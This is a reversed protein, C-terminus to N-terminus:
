RRPIRLLTSGHLTRTVNMFVGSDEPDMNSVTIDMTYMRTTASDGSMDRFFLSHVQLNPNTLLSPEGAGEKKWVKNDQLYFITPNKEPDRTAISIMSEIYDSSNVDANTDVVVTARPINVPDTETVLGGTLLIDTAPNTIEFEISHGLTSLGTEGNLDYVVYLCTTTASLPLSSSATITDDDSISAVADYLTTGSSPKRSECLGESDADASYIRINEISSTAFSGLKKLKISNLVVTTDPTTLTFAGGLDQNETVATTTAVQRGQRGVTIVPISDSIESYNFGVSNLVPTSSGNGYLEAKYYFKYGSWGLSTLDITSTGVPLTNSANLTGNSDYWDSGSRSFQVNIGSGAPLSAVDFNLSNMTSPNESSLLNNSVITGSTVYSGAISNEASVAANVSVSNLVPTFAGDSFFWIQYYFFPYMWNLGSLDIRNEGVSLTTSSTEVGLADFWRVNDYSFQIKMSTGEPIQLANYDLSQAYLSDTGALVNTSTIIGMNQYPGDNIGGILSVAVSSSDFIPTATGDSTFWIRYYFATKTWELDSLDISNVGATLDTRGGLVGASDYWNINDFSFQAQLATGAPIASANYSFTNITSPSNTPLINTSTLLGGLTYTADIVYNVGVSELVPTFIGNSVFMVRYYFKATVWGLRSIDVSNEGASLSDWGDLNGSSDYWRLYDSTPDDKSFQIQMSTGIPITLADYSVSQVFVSEALDLPLINASTIIGDTQYPGDNIGGILSVAVSSSDFVPTATGDSTFWVRYYFASKTWNLGSINLANTGVSLNTKGGEVGLSSYWTANDYSFQVQLNTGAPIDSATYTFTNITSPSNTPLINTSTLLGGLPYTAGTIYDLSISDLVPTATGDSILWVRYYFRATNWGLDSLDIANTGAPLTMWSDMNGSSDYWRRYDSSPDDRSFQIKLSTGAPIASATYTFNQVLVTATLDAPLINASHVVGDTQFTDASVLFPSVFFGLIFLTICFILINKSFSRM